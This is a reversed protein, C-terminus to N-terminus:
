PLSTIVENKIPFSQMSRVKGGSDAIVVILINHYYHKILLSLPLAKIKFLKEITTTGAIPKNKSLSGDGQSRPLM